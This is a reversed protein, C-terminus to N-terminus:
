YFWDIVTYRLGATVPLVEHYLHPRFALLQGSAAPFALGEDPWGPRVEYLMLEGGTYDEGPQNVFVIMTLNRVMTFRDAEIMQDRHRRFFDGPHYALLQPPHCGLLEIGFFAELEPKLSMLRYSLEATLREPLVLYKTRRAEENQYSSGGRLNVIGTKISREQNQPQMLRRCLIPDFFAERVFFDPAGFPALAQDACM